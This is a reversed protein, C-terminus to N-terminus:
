SGAVWLLRLWIALAILVFATRALARKLRRNAMARDYADLARTQRQLDDNSLKPPRATRDIRAM